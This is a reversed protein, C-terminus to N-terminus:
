CINEYSLCTKKQIYEGPSMQQGCVFTKHVVINSTTQVKYVYYKNLNKLIWFYLCKQDVHVIFSVPM